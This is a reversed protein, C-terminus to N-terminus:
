KAIRIVDAKDGTARCEIEEIEHKNGTIWEVLYKIMGVLDNCVPKDGTVGESTHWQKHIFLFSDEKEVVEVCPNIDITYRQESQKVLFNLLMKIKKSESFLKLSMKFVNTMKSRKEVGNRSIEEGILVMLGRSGKYGLIEFLALQIRHLEELPIALEDNDPPFADIYKQLHARNLINKLMSTGLEKQITELTLRLVLNDTKRGELM